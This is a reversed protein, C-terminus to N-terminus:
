RLTVLIWEIVADGANGCNRMAGADIWRADGDAKNCASRAGDEHEVTWTGGRVFIGIQNGAYRHM